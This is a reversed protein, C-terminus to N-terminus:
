GEIFSNWYRIQNESCDPVNFLKYTNGVQNAKNRGMSHYPLIEIGKLNPYKTKLYAISHLHAENDNIGPIIPCRLIISADNHYLYDLNNLILNNDVGTLYKHQYPNTTKYDYLFLDTFPLIERFHNQSAQGCTDICTHIGADKAAILLQKTFQFQALPEGGSITLGGGSNKYYNLDKMVENIIENITAKYGIMKLAENPCAKVCEGSLLCRDWIISHRNNHFHHVENLCAPVCSFCQLCKESNFSLQPQFLQSEPNHCWLCKLPCGKLFVTTRIGPGDNLSFRHIEFVIGESTEM